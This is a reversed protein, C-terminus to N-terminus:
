QKGKITVNSLLTVRSGPVITIGAGELATVPINIICSGGALPKIIVHVGTHIPSAPMLGDQWNAQVDWNGNGTFTYVAAYDPSCNGNSQLVEAFFRAVSDSVALTGPFIDHPSSFPPLGATYFFHKKPAPYQVRNLKDWIWNSGYLTPAFSSPAPTFTSDLFQFPPGSDFPVVDDGPVHYLYIAPQQTFANFLNTDGIAGSLSMVGLVKADYGSNISLSGDVSGLDPRQYCAAAEYNFPLLNHSRYDADDKGAPGNTQLTTNIWNPNALATLSGAALPKENEVDTFATALSMIAGASFGGIFYQCTSSSDIMSRSKMWRVVGKMDQQARYGARVYEGPAAFPGGDYSNYISLIVPDNSAPAPLGQEFAILHFGERYDMSVGVYGRRAFEEAFVAMRNDDANETSTFSGGHAFIAVPRKANNDGIPKYINVSITDTRGCYNVDTGVFVASKKIVEYQRLTYPQAFCQAIILPIFFLLSKM